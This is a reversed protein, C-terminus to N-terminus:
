DVSRAEMARQISRTEADNIWGYLTESDDKRLETLCVNNGRLM